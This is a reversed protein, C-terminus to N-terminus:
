KGPRARKKPPEEGGKLPPAKWLCIRGDEGSTAFGSDLDQHAGLSAVARIVTRHGDKGKGKASARAWQLEGECVSDELNLHFLMFSGDVAGVLAHSRGSDKSYLVDVVNGSSEDIQLRKDDRLNEFRGCSVGPKAESFSWFEVVDDTSVTAALSLDDGVFSLARVFTTTNVVLDMGSDEEIAKGGEICRVVDLACLLSDDAATFLRGAKEPHFRLLSVPEVHADENVFLEKGTGVDFCVVREGFGSACWKDDASLTISTPPKGKAAQMVRQPETCSTRLDWIKLAGDEGCSAISQNTEHFVAIDEAARGGHPGAVKHVSRFTPVDVVEISGDKRGVVSAVLHQAKGGSRLPQLIPVFADGFSCQAYAPKGRSEAM